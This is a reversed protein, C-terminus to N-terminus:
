YRFTAALGSSSPMRNQPIVLIKGGTLLVREAIDDLVDEGLVEDALVGNATKAEDPTRLRLEGSVDDIKGAINRDAEILLSAVKGSAAARAIEALTDSGAKHASAKNYSSIADSVRKSYEPEFINWAKLILDEKTVSDPHISVAQELLHNNHTISKFISFYEPLTVLILPLGSPISHENLVARDVERFFRVIDKEDESSKGGHGHHMFPEGSGNGSGNYSGGTLYPKTLDSGLAAELNIPIKDSTIEDLGYRTGEYVTVNTRSLCLVQYRDESQLVRVLPIIYFSDSVLTKTLLRAAVKIEKVFDDAIFLALGDLQHAWFHRDTEYRMLHDIIIRKNVKPYNKELAKGIDKVLNKFVIPDKETGPHHRHTSMYLSVAPSATSKVLEELTKNSLQLM